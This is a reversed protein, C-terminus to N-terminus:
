PKHDPTGLGRSAGGPLSRALLGALDPSESEWESRACTVVRTEGLSELVVTVHTQAEERRVEPRLRFTWRRGDHAVLTRLESAPV